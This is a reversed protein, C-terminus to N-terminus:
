KGGSEPLSRVSRTNGADGGQQGWDIIMLVIVAVLWLHAYGDPRTALLTLEARSQAPTFHSAARRLDAERSDAFHAAGTLLTQGGQVVRFFCPFSPARFKGNKPIVIEKDGRAGGEPLMRAPPGSPDLPVALPQNTEYNGQGHVKKGDRVMENFRHLLIVFEPLNKANSNELSFHFILKPGAVGSALSLIPVNRRWLLPRAAWQVSSAFVPPPLVEGCLFGQWSLGETLPHNEAVFEGGHLPSKDQAGPIMITPIDPGGLLFSEGPSYVAVAIDAEDLAQAVGTSEFSSFVNLLLGISDDAGARGPLRSVAVAKLVPPVMPLKDDLGFADGSLVIEARQAGPPLEGSVSLIQNPGLVLSEPDGARGDVDLSWSREQVVDSYNQILVTWALGANGGGGDPLVGLGVDVLGVNPLPAGVAMLEIGEPVDAVHDTAFIVIGNESAITRAANLAGKVDHAGLGPRHNEAAALFARSESGSYLSASAPDTELLTWEVLTSASEYEDIRAGLASMLNEQFAGMSASSDLVVVVRRVGGSHFWRPAMLLWALALASLLQLWLSASKRLRQIRVGSSSRQPMQDVLFLTSVFVRRSRQRLLHILVVLPIGLLAWSGEPNGLIM